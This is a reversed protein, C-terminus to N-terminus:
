RVEEIIVKTIRENTITDLKKVKEKRTKENVFKETKVERKIKKEQKDFLKKFIRDVGKKFYPNREVLDDISLNVTNKNKHTFLKTKIEKKEKLYNDVVEEVSSKGSGTPGCKFLFYKKPTSSKSKNSHKLEESM